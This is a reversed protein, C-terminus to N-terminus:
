LFIKENLAVLSFSHTALFHDLETENACKNNEYLGEQCRDIDLIMLDNKTTGLNGAFRYNLGHDLCAAKSRKLWNYWQQNLSKQDNNFERDYTECDVMDRYNQSFKVGNSDIQGAKVSIFKKYDKVKIPKFNDDSGAIVLFFDLFMDDLKVVQNMEDLSLMEPVQETSNKQYTLM